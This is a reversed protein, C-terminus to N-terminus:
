ATMITSLTGIVKTRLHTNAFNDLWTIKKKKKANTSLTAKELM